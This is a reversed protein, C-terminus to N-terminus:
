TNGDLSGPGIKGWHGALLAFDDYDVNGLGDLNASIPGSNLWQLAMLHLDNIEVQCNGDIDGAPCLEGLVPLALLM